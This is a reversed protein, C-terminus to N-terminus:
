SLKSSSIIDLNLRYIDERLGLSSKNVTDDDCGRQNAGRGDLAHDQHTIQCIVIIQVLRQLTKQVKILTLM